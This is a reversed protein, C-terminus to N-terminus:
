VMRIWVSFTATALFYKVKSFFANLILASTAIRLFANKFFFLVYVTATLFFSSATLTSCAARSRQSSPSTYSFMDTTLFRIM